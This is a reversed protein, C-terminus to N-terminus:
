LRGRWAAGARVMDAMLPMDEPHVRSAILELTVPTGPEFEFIRYIHESWIIEDTAVRWSLSGMRALYQGEALFAESRRLEEEARKRDDIDSM